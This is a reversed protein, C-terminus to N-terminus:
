LGRQLNIILEVTGEPLALEQTHSPAYGEQLWFLAIYQSLPPQPVFAHQM